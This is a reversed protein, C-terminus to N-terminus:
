RVFKLRLWDNGPPQRLHLSQRGKCQQRLAEPELSLWDAAPGPGRQVHPLILVQSKDRKPGLAFSEPSLPHQQRSMM